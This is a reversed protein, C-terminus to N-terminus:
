LLDFAVFRSPDREALMEVRSAPPHIREGLKAFEQPGGPGFIVIEGDVVYEGKPFTLEAFYRRLPKGNRSQLYIEDGDVFAIARFGDWKPEYAWGDGEPLAARSRALQPPVPPALPLAM